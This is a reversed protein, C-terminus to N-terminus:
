VLKTYRKDYWTKVVPISYAVCGILGVVILVYGIVITVLYVICLTVIMKLVNM